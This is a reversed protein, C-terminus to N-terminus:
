LIIEEMPKNIIVNIIYFVLERLKGSVLDQIDEFMKFHFPAFEYKVYDIYYYIFWHLFDDKLLYKREKSECDKIYNLLEANLM